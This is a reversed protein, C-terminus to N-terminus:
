PQPTSSRASSGTTTPNAPSRRSSRASCPTATTRISSARAPKSRRHCSRSTLSCNVSMSSNAGTSSIAATSDHACNRRTEASLISRRSAPSLQNFFRALDAATSVFGTAPAMAHALMKGPIVARRGLPYEGTHGSALPARRDIPMDPATEALDAADIVERKIWTNYPEGSVQRDGTRASRLRPEFIQLPHRARDRAAPKQLDALLERENFFERRDLFYGSDLGDRVFGASHSLLQGIRARASKAHLGGVYDGVRADLHLKGQERLKLVGAATFSKSHSAVRFRHRPTMAEGTALNAVGFAHEAIVKNRHVVAIVCGPHHQMRVQYGLYHPVYDLAAKLWRDM